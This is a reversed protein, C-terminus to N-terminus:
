LSTALAEVQTDADGEVPDGHGPLADAFRLDALKRVSDYAVQLDATFRAIPGAIGGAEATLADGAVLFGGDPDLISIHGATHGPTAIIRLGFVEDGDGVPKLPRPSQIAAIDAEGAYATAGDAADLVAGIGGAHDPHFHTLMVHDVDPWGVGLDSLTQGITTESGSTGTDVIAAERGRVLVYASVFGLDVRHWSVPEPAPASTTTAQRSAGPAEGDSNPEDDDQSCAIATAGFVTVALTGRGVQTLFRRRDLRKRPPPPRDPDWVSWSGPHQAHHHHDPHSM